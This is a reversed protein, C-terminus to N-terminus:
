ALRLEDVVSRGGRAVDLIAEELDLADFQGFRFITHLAPGAVILHAHGNVERCSLEVTAEGVAVSLLNPEDVLVWMKWIVLERVADWDHLLM